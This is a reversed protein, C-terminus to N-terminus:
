LIVAFPDNPISLEAFTGGAKTGTIPLKVPGLRHNTAVKLGTSLSEWEEWTAKIGGIPIISVWLRFAKPLGSDDLIWLYSDGPTVGGSTYTVLLADNGDEDKVVSREVGEDFVKTPAIFWFSDNCFIEWAKGRKKDLENGTVENGEEYAKGKEWEDLNLLVQNDRWKVEVLNRKKDWLYHHTGNFTWTLINTQDMNEAGVASMMKNALRDAEPGSNGEPLPKNYILYAGVFLLILIAVLVGLVRFLTKM